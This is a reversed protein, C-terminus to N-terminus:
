KLAANLIQAAQAVSREARVFERAAAAMNARLATDDILRRVAQAFLNPENEPVLLGTRDRRVVEPVGRLDGAVVPLGSAQAELMAMGYAEGAAPWVFLDAAALTQPMQDPAVAGLHVIRHPPLAALAGHVEARAEGDGVTLLCWDAGELAQLAAALRRYSELKDGPRMMGVAILWTLDPDIGFRDALDQRSDTRDLASNTYPGADLFPPLHYLNEQRDVLPAVCARDHETLCLVADAQGLAQGVSEHGQDWPGGARKPAYSPEAVVYPINLRRSILPGLYDPAKYYLHYTFWVQPRADPPAALYTELVHEAEAKGAAALAQQLDPRGQGEFSRFESALAVQHGGAELATILLRAMRRDGSPTDHTPSKLPAYFAVRM